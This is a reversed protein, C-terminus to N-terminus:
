WKGIGYKKTVDDLDGFLAEEGQLVYTPSSSSLIRDAVRRIDEVSLAEIKDCMEDVPVREGTLQVQRGVDELEVMKSELNMLLSSKLQNKARSVETFTLAGAGTDRLLGLQHCIVHSLYPTANPPCSASIGFTGSDSYSTNASLCSEIYGYQNLVNTYLRSYMGKGPGGASFSGGGGLLTQLVALAYVDPDLISLGEFVIHLHYFVPLNGIPQPAPIHIRGGVYKSPPIEITSKGSSVMDGLHQEALQVARDHDIGIFAAVMRDPSYFANRYKQILDANIVDLREEPCLLPNGLGGEYAAVCSLEPLILESKQWIESLEYSVAMKQLEVEEETIQPSKVTDALLEFMGDVDDNFVCAQYMMTERSSACMYNGGLSNLENEMEEASRSKTSKFALRDVLHSIGSFQKGEFRSGSTVYIGMASFHGPVPVTAVRLGNKLTSLELNSNPSTSSYSRILREVVPLSIRSFQQRRNPRLVRLM